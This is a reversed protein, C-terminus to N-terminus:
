WDKRFGITLRVAQAAMFSLEPPRDPEPARKWVHDLWAEAYAKKAKNRIRRVYERAAEHDGNFEGSM